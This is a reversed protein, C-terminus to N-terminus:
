KTRTISAASNVDANVISDNIIAISNIRTYGGFNPM